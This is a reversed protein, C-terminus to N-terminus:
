KRGQLILLILIIWFAIRTTTNFDQGFCSILFGVGLALVLSLLIRGLLLGLTELIGAGELSGWLASVVVVFGFFELIM